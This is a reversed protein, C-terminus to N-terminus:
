CDPCTDDYDPLEAPDAVARHSLACGCEDGALLVHEELQVPEHEHATSGCMKWPYLRHVSM